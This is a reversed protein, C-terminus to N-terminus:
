FIKTIEDREPRELSMFENNDNIIVGNGDSLVIGIETVDISNKAL